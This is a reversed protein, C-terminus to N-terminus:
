AIGMQKQGAIVRRRLVGEGEDLSRAKAASSHSSM